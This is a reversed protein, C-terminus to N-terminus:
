NELQLKNIIEQEEETATIGSNKWYDSLIVNQKNLLTKDKFVENEKYSFKQTSFNTTVMYNKIEFSKTQKKITKTFGIEEKSSVLYYTDGQVKYIAKFESKYINKAGESKNEEIKSFTIPSVLTSIEIIMKRKRDYIIKIDDRMGSIEDLPTILMTYNDENSSNSKIIFDYEKKARSELIPNLYKFVYYNEMVDNLNYGLLDKKIDQDVLGYSRNQDVFITTNFNKDNGTLQFNILGDNYYSYTNDISFFERSYVKLKAPLTLKKISNAVINRLILQPHQKTVVIEDLDNINKRLYITTEKDKLNISKLTQSIYSANSIKLLTPQTISIVVIGNTNSLLNQKSKVVYVTIDEIPLNTESDKFLVIIESNQSFVSAILFLFFLLFIKKMFTNLGFKTIENPNKCNISFTKNHPM